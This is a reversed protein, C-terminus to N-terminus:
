VRALRRLIGALKRLGGNSRVTMQGGYENADLVLVRRGDENVIELVQARLIKPEEEPEQALGQAGFWALAAAILIRSRLEARRLRRELSHIANTM